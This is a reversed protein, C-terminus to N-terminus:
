DQGPTLSIQPPEQQEVSEAVTSIIQNQKEAEALLEKEHEDFVHEVTALLKKIPGTERRINNYKGERYLQELKEIEAEAKLLKFHILDHKNQDIYTKSPFSKLETAYSAIRAELARILKRCKKQASIKRFQYTKSIRELRAIALEANYAAKKNEDTQLQTHSKEILTRVSALEDNVYYIADSNELISLSAVAQELKNQVSNACSFLVFSLALGLALCLRSPFRLVM